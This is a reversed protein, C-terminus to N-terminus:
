HDDILCIKAHVYINRYEGPKSHSAIGVLSFNDYSGLAGLRDYFPKSKPNKRAEAMENNPDAPVLFTVDVGRQLAEHLAEVIEPAGIAQDEFYITSKAAKIAKLYQHYISPDGDAINHSEGGPTPTVDTYHGRRVTRQIQVLSSGSKPSSQTPFPLESQANHDPWVGDAEIRDSAENWRQVFNHHVDTGSPGQVEVYVDHTSPGNDHGHGPAIVSHNGLNIGGVFAIESDKGADVLWSKQHQCYLKQARDWRALFTSGRTSLFERHRATGAFAATERDAMAEPPRWFIVRVDVGRAKAKDLVDFFSGYGGPMEFDSNLFAITVWVSHKAAEVAECIRLFAPEGDVLPRVLNGDRLPYAGSTVHPIHSTHTDPTSHNDTDAKHM